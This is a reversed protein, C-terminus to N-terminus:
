IFKGNKFGKVSKNALTFNSFKDDDTVEKVIKLFPPLDVKEKKDNLEIELIILGDLYNKFVDLEFEQNKYNFVLRNKYVTKKSPDKYKLYKKYNEESIKEEKEKHTATGAPTKQNIDYYTKKSKFGEVTKRIRAAPDGKIAKLYVQEIRKITVLNDLLTFLDQWSTIKM